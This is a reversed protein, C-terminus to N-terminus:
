ETEKGIFGKKFLEDALRQVQPRTFRIGVLTEDVFVDDKTRDASIMAAQDDDSFSIQPCCNSRCLLVPKAM